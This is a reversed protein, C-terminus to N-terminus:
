IRTYKEHTLRSEALLPHFFPSVHHVAQNRLSPPFLCLATGLFLDVRTRAAQVNETAGRFRREVLGVERGAVATGKLLM